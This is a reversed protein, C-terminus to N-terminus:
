CYDQGNSEEWINKNNKVWIKQNSSGRLDLDLNKQSEIFKGDIIVDINDFIKKVVPDGYDLNQFKFGTWLYIKINPYTARVASVVQEVMSINQLSLPEGGLISFNREIGNAGIAKIIEHITEKTFPHGGNFDWTEPNFCGPCRRKCGQVFFSVCVGKGNVVDNKIITNYRSM